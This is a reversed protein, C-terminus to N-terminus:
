AGAPTTFATELAAIDIKKMTMLAAQVRAAADADGSSLLHPLAKPVIQWSVGYRDKLWGCQGPVGGDILAAWLRDTEPQDDTLVSISAAESHKFMPGGNLVMFPAGALRFEVVLPPKQPDPRVETEVGSDPLLSVYFAAAEHGDGDFWLCTRVKASLEM